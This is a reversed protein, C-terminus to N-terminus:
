KRSEYSVGEVYYTSYYDRGKEEMWKRMSEINSREHECEEHTDADAKEKEIVKMEREDIEEKSTRKEFLVGKIVIENGVLEADFSGIEGKAFIQMTVDSNEASIFCKTGGHSCTHTVFGKILITDGIHQDIEQLLSDVTYAVAFNDVETKKKECSFLLVASALIFVPLLLKKM